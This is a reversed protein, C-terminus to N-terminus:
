LRILVPTRDFINQLKIENANYQSILHEIIDPKPLRYTGREEKTILVNEIAENLAGIKPKSLKLDLAQELEEIKLGKKKKPNSGMWVLLLRTYDKVIVEKQLQARISVNGKPPHRRLLERAPTGDKYVPHEDLNKRIQRYLESNNHDM